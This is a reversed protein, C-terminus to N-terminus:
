RGAALTRLRDAYRKAAASDGRTQHFNVLASLIDGDAPHLRLAAELKIIAADVKGASHLAVANVYAFRANTPELAAARELEYLASDALKLRTLALGRAFHLPASEPSRALGDRLLREGDSDRGVERYVDALNVYAPVFRPELRIAAKLESEGGAIDGLQALFTGLNTRGEARDANQRQTAIFENSASQFATRQEMTMLAVSAGALAQAAAIRLARVSDSLLTAGLQVRQQPALRSVSELAGLRVVPNPDRLSVVVAAFAQPSSAGHLQALATSRAIPPQADDSALERLGTQARIDNADAAAFTQAYRQYGQPDRGYWQRIQAAAWRADRDGHCSSCANPTGLTVSLDPRPVRLSHDRRPDIVMYTTAPMHCSVCSAGASGTQHRYHEVVDYKAPSHCTACVANGSARLKGTHPNHCDSCTVGRAYMRSQVFSGWTYVEDRQQGDAHYLPSTLLAPRYYDLFPKGSEYGDAIQGRRSHCQACSQIEHETSRPTSRTANGTSVNVSWTVGRRETLRALLGLTSDGRSRSKDPANAWAVHQSGPGHCAECGVSIESSQTHFRNAAADYNKRVATSHCDACMMNWNQSPRTWHLEDGSTIRENPYLHFWRQGGREKPRTDWAISLAQLRGDPFEILYQQLPEVGFTYRVEFDGLKGDPGDTRVFFKDDRRYFSSTIGAYSFRADAFDGKVTQQNATAMAAQHQSQRWEGAEAQHCSVCGNTGVYQASAASATTIPFRFRSAAFWVVASAALITAAIAGLIASRPRSRTTAAAAQPTRARRSAKQKKSGV